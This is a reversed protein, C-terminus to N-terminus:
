IKYADPNVCNVMIRPMYKSVCEILQSIESSHRDTHWVSEQANSICHFTLCVINRGEPLKYEVPPM